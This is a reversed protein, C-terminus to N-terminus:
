SPDLRDATRRLEGALTKSMDTGVTSMFTHFEDVTWDRMRHEMMGDVRFRSYSSATALLDVADVDWTRETTWTVGDPSHENMVDALREIPHRM